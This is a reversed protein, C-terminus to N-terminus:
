SGSTEEAKGPKRRLRAVFPEFDSLLNRLLMLACYCFSFPVMLGNSKILDIETPVRIDSLWPLTRTFASLSLTALIMVSWAGTADSIWSGRKNTENVWWRHLSLGIAVVVAVGFMTANLPDFVPIVDATQGQVM